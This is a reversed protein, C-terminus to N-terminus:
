INDDERSGMGCPKNHIRSTKQGIIKKGTLGNRVVSHFISVGRSGESGAHRRKVVARIWM